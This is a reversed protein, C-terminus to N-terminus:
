RRWGEGFTSWLHTGLNAALLCCMVLALFLAMSAGTKAWGWCRAVTDWQTADIVVVGSSEGGESKIGDLKANLVGLDDHLGQTADAIQQQVKSDGDSHSELVNDLADQVQEVTLPEVQQTQGDTPSAELEVIQVEDTM